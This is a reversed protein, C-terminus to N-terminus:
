ALRRSSARSVAAKIGCYQPMSAIPHLGVSSGTAAICGGPTPNQRMFHIALQTGYILGFYCTQSCGLM